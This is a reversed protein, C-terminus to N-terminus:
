LVIEKSIFKLLKSKDHDSVYTADDYDGGGYHDDDV